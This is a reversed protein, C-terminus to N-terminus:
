TMLQLASVNFQFLCEYEAPVATAHSSPSAFCSELPSGSFTFKVTDKTAEIKALKSVHAERVLPEHHHHRPAKAASM